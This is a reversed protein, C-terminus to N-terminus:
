STYLTMAFLSLIYEKSQKLSSRVLKSSMNASPGSLYTALWGLMTCRM